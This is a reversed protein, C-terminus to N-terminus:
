QRQELRAKLLRKWAEESSIAIVTGRPPADLQIDRSVDNPPILWGGPLSDATGEVKTGTVGCVYTIKMDIGRQLDMCTSHM